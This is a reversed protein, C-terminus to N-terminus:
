KSNTYAYLGVIVIGIITITVTLSVLSAWEPHDTQLSDITQSAMPVLLSGVLMVGITVAVITTVVTKVDM